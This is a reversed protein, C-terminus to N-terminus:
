NTRREAFNVTSRRRAGDVIQQHIKIGVEDSWADSLRRFVPGPKGGAIQVGGIRSVPMMCYPTSALFAEDAHTAQDPTIDREAVPIGLRSALEIVTARSVGGLTNALTPSLIRDREVMMFNATSTETIHGSMDLLLAAANPDVQWAEHDALYFHMRSRCKIAPDICQPPIHRVSPIVLHVGNEIRDAWLEFPLPFTHACVTPANRDISTAPAYTRYEGATVFIVLGLEDEEHILRAHQLVLEQAIDELQDKSLDIKIRAAHLSHFLRDLHDRLRFLRHHFTRAQDTVTAGLVIGADYIPLCARSAPVMQGNLYALPESMVGGRGNYLSLVNNLGVLVLLFHRPRVNDDSGPTHIRLASRAAAIRQSVKECWKGCSLCRM